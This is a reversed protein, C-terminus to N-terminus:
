VLQPALQTRVKGFAAAPIGNAAFDRNVQLTLVAAGLYDFREARTVAVFSFLKAADFSDAEILLERTNPGRKGSGSWDLVRKRRCCV